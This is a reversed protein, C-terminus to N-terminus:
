APRLWTGIAPQRMFWLEGSTQRALVVARGDQEVSGRLYQTSSGLSEWGVFPGNPSTQINRWVARDTGVALLEIRGDGLEVSHVFTFSGGLSHWADFRGNAAIQWRHVVQLDSSVAFLEMRGDQNRAVTLQRVSGHLSQWEDFHANPAIQWRHYIQADAGVIFLEFRGDANTGIRPERGVRNLSHWADFQQNPAIQWRHHISGDTYEAFLEIRGDANRAATADRISGGLSHWESFPGNPHLQWRHWLASDRARGFLEMRGDLNLIGFAPEVFGDMPHWDALPGGPMTEWTHLMTGDSRSAVVELRGDQNTIAAATQFSTGLSVWSEPTGAVWDEYAIAARAYIGDNLMFTEGSIWGDPGTNYYDWQKEWLVHGNVITMFGTPLVGFRWVERHNGRWCWDEGGWCWDKQTSTGDVAEFGRTFPADLNQIFAAAKWAPGSPSPNLAKNAPVGPNLGLVWGLHGAALKEIQRNGTLQGLFIMDLTMTAFFTCNYFYLGAAIPRGVRPVVAMADWNAVNQAKDGGSSQPIVHFGNESTLHVVLAATLERLSQVWHETQAPLTQRIAHVGEFWPIMQGTDRWAGRWGEVNFFNRDVLFEEGAQLAMSELRDVIPQVTPFPLSGEVFAAFGADRRACRAILCYFLARHEAAFGQKDLWLCAKWARRMAAAALAPDIDPAKAAFSLDGYVGAITHYTVLKDNEDLDNGGARGPEEHKYRGTGGGLRYLHGLYSVGTVIARRLAIRDDDSLQGRRSTWMEVLGAVFAGHSTAEGNINNCDYFGHRQAFIPSCAPSEVVSKKNPTKPDPDARTTGDCLGKGPSKARDIFLDDGVQLWDFKVGHRWVAVRAFRVSSAWAKIAFKGKLDVCVRAEFQFGPDPDPLPPEGVDRPPTSNLYVRVTAATVEIRISYVRGSRFPEPLYRADIRRFHEKNDVGPGEEHLRIAGPGGGHACPGGAGAQLTVALRRAPTVGFQLQADCGELITVEGTMTYGPTLEDERLKATFGNLERELLAGEQDNAKWVWLAGDDGVTFLGSALTWNHRLDEDAANRATANLITLPRVIRRTLLREEITFPSSELVHVTNGMAVDFRLVYTGPKCIETFDAEWLQLGYTDPIPLLPGTRVVRGDTTLVTFGTRERDLGNSLRVLTRLLARKSGASLYGLTSYLMSFNSLATVDTSAYLQSFEITASSGFPRFAYLGLRGAPIADDQVRKSMGDVTVDFISGMCTVSVAHPVDPALLNEREVGELVKWVWNSKLVQRSIGGEFVPVWQFELMQRYIRFGSERLSVGYRGDGTIRFQLHADGGAGFLITAGFSFDAGIVGPLHIEAHEHQGRDSSDSVDVFGDAVLRAYSPAPTWKGFTPEFDNVTWFLDTTM